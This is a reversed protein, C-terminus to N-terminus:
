AIEEKMTRAAQWISVRWKSYGPDYPYLIARSSNVYITAGHSRIKNLEAVTGGQAGYGAVFVARGALKEGIDDPLQASCAIVPIAKPNALTFDLAHQWMPRGDFAQIDQVMFAGPNSTRVLVVPFCDPYADFAELVETGMYPNVVIGDVKLEGAMYDLYARMTNDIDGIKCDLFIPTLKGCDRIFRVIGSLIEKGGTLPDFFAKQIKYGGAVDVTASVVEKLFPLVSGEDGYQRRLETPIKSIDPDLGVCIM